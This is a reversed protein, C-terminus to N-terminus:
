EGWEGFFLVNPDFAGEKSLMAAVQRAEAESRLVFSQERLWDYRKREIDDSPGPAEVLTYRERIIEYTGHEGACIRIRSDDTEADPDEDIREIDDTM